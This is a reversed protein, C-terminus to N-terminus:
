GRKFPLADCTTIHQNFTSIRYNIASIAEQPTYMGFRGHWSTYTDANKRRLYVTDINLVKALMFVIGGFTNHTTGNDAEFKTLKKNIQLLAAYISAANALNIEGEFRTAYLNTGSPEMNGQAILKFDGLPFEYAATYEKTYISAEAKIYGYSTDITVFIALNKTIEKSM